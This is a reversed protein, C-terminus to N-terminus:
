KVHLSKYLDGITQKKYMRRNLVTHIRPENNGNNSSSQSFDLLTYLTKYHCRITLVM